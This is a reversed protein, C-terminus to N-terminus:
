RGHDRRRDPQGQRQHHHHEAGHDLMAVCPGSGADAVSIASQSAGPGDHGAVARPSQVVEGQSGVLLEEERSVGDDSVGHVATHAQDRRVRDSWSGFPLLGPPGKSAIDVLVPPREAPQAGTLLPQRDIPSGAHMVEVDPVLGHHSYAAEPQLASAELSQALGDVPDGLVAVPDTKVVGGLQVGSQPSRQLLDHGLAAAAIHLPSEGHGEAPGEVGVVGAEEQRHHM